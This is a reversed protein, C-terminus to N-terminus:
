IINNLFIAFALTLVLTVNIVIFNKVALIFTEEKSQKKFFLKIHKNVLVFTVFVLATILPAIKLILLIFLAIYGIYYLVKFVKLANNKGVYIPLTYRKNEIDDKIDCINNALMINAIGVAAPMSILIIYLM